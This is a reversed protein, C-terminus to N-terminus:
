FNVRLPYIDIVQGNEPGSQISICKVYFSQHTIEPIYKFLSIMTIEKTEDHITSTEEIRELQVDDYAHQPNPGVYAFLKPTPYGGQGSCEIHEEIGTTIYVLKSFVFILHGRTCYLSNHSYLLGYM